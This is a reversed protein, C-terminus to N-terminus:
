MNTPAVLPAEFRITTGKGITSELTFTGGVREARKRFNALGNGTGAAAHPDFGRGDDTINLLVRICSLDLQVHFVQPAAHKIANNMAERLLLVIERKLDPGITAEEDGKAITTQVEAKMDLDAMQKGILDRIFAAFTVLRDNRPDITWVIDGLDKILERSTAEISGRMRDSDAIRTALTIKTLGAGIGDHIDRAIRLRVDDLASQRELGAIRLRYRQGLFYRMLLLVILLPVSVFLIRALTTQWWGPIIDFPIALVLGKAAGTISRAEFVHAGPDLKAFHVSRQAGHATWAGHDLRYESRMALGHLPDIAAFEFAINNQDHAFRYGETSGHQGITSTTYEAGNVQLSRLYLNAAVVTTPQRLPNFRYTGMVGGIALMTSDDVPLLQAVLQPDVGVSGSREEFVTTAPDFCVLGRSTGIWVNGDAALAADRYTGHHEKDSVRVCDYGDDQPHLLVVSQENTIAVITGEKTAVATQIGALEAYRRTTSLLYSIGSTRLDLVGIGQGDFVMALHHRDLQVLKSCGNVGAHDVAPDIFTFTGHVDRCLSGKGYCAFWLSGDPTALIDQVHPRREAFAPLHDVRVETITRSTAPKRFLGRTTGIWVDGHQDELVSFPEAQASDAGPIAISDMPMGDTSVKFLMRHQYYRVAWYGGDGAKTLIASQLGSIGPMPGIAPRSPDIVAMSTSTGLWTRGSQDASAAIASINGIRESGPWPDGYRMTRTNFTRLTGDIALLLEDPGWPILSSVINSIGPAGKPDLPYPTFRAERLEYRMLGFGWTRLWLVDPNLPDAVGGQLLHKRTKPDTRDLTGQLSFLTSGEEARWLGSREVAWIAQPTAFIGTISLQRSGTLTIPSFASDGPAIRGVVDSLFAAWISGDKAECLAAALSPTQVGPQDLPIRKFSSTNPEFCSVGGSGAVWLVGAHDVLLQTILNGPLSLSDEPDHHFLDTNIGDFRCLGSATGIWLFGLHDVACATVQPDPLVPGEVPLVMPQALLSSSIILFICGFWRGVSQFM